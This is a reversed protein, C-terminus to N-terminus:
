LGIQEAQSANCANPKQAKDNGLTDRPNVAHPHIM